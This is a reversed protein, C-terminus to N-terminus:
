LNHVPLSTVICQGLRRQCLQAVSLARTSMIPLHLLCIHHFGQPMSPSKRAACQLIDASDLGDAEVAAARDASLLPTCFAQHAARSGTAVANLGFWGCSCRLMSVSCAVSSALWALSGGGSLMQSDRHWGQAASCGHCANCAMCWPVKSLRCMVAGQSSQSGHLESLQQSSHPLPRELGPRPIISWPTDPAATCLRM